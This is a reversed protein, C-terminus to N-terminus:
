LLKDILRELLACLALMAPTLAAIMGIVFKKSVAKEKAVCLKGDLVGQKYADEYNNFTALTERIFNEPGHKRVAKAVLDSSGFYGDFDDNDQRHVGIYYKGNLLNITKYVIVNM